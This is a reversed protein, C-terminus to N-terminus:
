KSATIAALDAQGRAISRQSIAQPTEDKMGKLLIKGTSLWEALQRRLGQGEAADLLKVWQEYYLTTPFRGIGTASVGGKEAIVFSVQNKPQSAAVELAAIKALLEAYTPQVPQVPQAVQAVTGNPKAVAVANAPVNM